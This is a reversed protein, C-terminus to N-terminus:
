HHARLTFWGGMYKQHYLTHFAAHSHEDNVLTANNRQRILEIEEQNAGLYIQKSEDPIHIFNRSYEYIICREILM